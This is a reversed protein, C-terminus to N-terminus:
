GVGEAEEFNAISQHYEEESIGNKCDNFGYSLAEVTSGYIGYAETCEGPQLREGSLAMVPISDWDVLARASRIFDEDCARDDVEDPTFTTGDELERKIPKLSDLCIPELSDYVFFFEKRVGGPDTSLELVYFSKM